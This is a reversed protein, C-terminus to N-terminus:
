LGFESRVAEVILRAKPGRYKGHIAQWATCPVFGKSIVFAHLSGWSSQLAAARAARIDVAPADPNKKEAVRALNKQKM